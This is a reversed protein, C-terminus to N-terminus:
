LLMCFISRQIGWTSCSPYGHFGQFLQCCVAKVGAEEVSMWCLMLFVHWPCLDGSFQNLMNADLPNVTGVQIIVLNTPTVLDEDAPGGFLQLQGECSPSPQGSPTKTSVDVDWINQHQELTAWGVLCEKDRGQRWLVEGSSFRPYNERSSEM